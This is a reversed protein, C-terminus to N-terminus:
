RKQDINFKKRLESRKDRNFLFKSIDIANYLIRAKQGNKKGFLWTAAPLSCAATHTAFLFNLPKLFNLILIKFINTTLHNTNHSHSVRIKVRIIKGLFLFLWNMSDAHCHIVDYNKFLKFVTSLFKVFYIKRPLIFINSKKYQILREFKNDKAKYHALFDFHVIESNVHEFYTMLFKSIGGYDMSGGNIHLVKIPKTNNM